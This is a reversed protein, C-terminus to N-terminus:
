NWLTWRIGYVARTDPLSRGPLDQLEERVTFNEWQVFIRVTVIRFQLRGYWSRYAPVSQLSDMEPSDSSAAFPVFMGGRDRVGIDAWVELSSEYAERRWELAGNWSQDPMYRWQEPAPDWLQMAGQLRLGRLLPDLAVSGEVEVGTRRGGPRVVGDRDFAGGMPRLSDAEVVLWAASLDAGRWQARVGARIGQREDFRAGDEGEGEADTDEEEGQALPRPVFVVGRRLDQAEAFVSLGRRPVSWIRGSLSRGTEDDWVEQEAAVSAGGWTSSQVGAEAALVRSPWGAGGQERFELRAAIPGRDGSGRLGIQSRTFDPLISDGAASSDEGPQIRTRNAFAELTLDDRVAWGAEVGWDTRDVSVPLYVGEARETTRSRYQLGIGVDDGRGFLTYRFHTGYAASPEGRRTGDTDTRDLALLVTGGLADPHVFTARFINTRLDGTALDLYTFPRPDTVQATELHIRLDGPRREVRVSELGSLGLDAFDVVGGEMPPDEVGDRFVRIQGPGLGFVVPIVPNGIDGGRVLTVGPVFSILDHLTISQASALAERDWEWIGTEVLSPVVPGAQPRNRVPGDPDHDHEDRDTVGLLTDTVPPGDDLRRQEDTRVPGAPPRVTDPLITDVIITDAGFASVWVATGGAREQGVVGGADLTGAHVTGAAVLLLVTLVVATRGFSTTVRRSEPGM